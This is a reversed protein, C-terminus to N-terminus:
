NELPRTRDIVATVQAALLSYAMSAIVQQRVYEVASGFNKSVSKTAAGIEVQM